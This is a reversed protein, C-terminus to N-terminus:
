ISALFVNDQLEDDILTNRRIVDLLTTKELNALEDGSFINQYWFRDGDRVNEFQMKIIIHFLEGLSSDQYLDESLGGIWVDIDDVNTYVSKLKDVVVSDTTIEEFSQRRKLGLDERADNYSPLGHDRGRQINLSALDMGGQGPIGFLFNRLASVTTVDLAECVQSAAGRFLSEIGGDIPLLEPAFFADQLKLPSGLTPNLDSDLRLLQSSVLSHGLRYAATSFINTITADVDPKYGSYSSIDSGLLVPLFENFTVV